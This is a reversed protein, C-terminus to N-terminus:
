NRVCLGHFVDSELATNRGGTPLLIVEAFNLKLALFASLKKIDGVIPIAKLNRLLKLHKIAVLTRWFVRSDTTTNPSKM